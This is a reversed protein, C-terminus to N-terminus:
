LMVTRVCGVLGDCVQATAFPVPVVPLASTVLMATVQVVLGGRNTYTAFRPAPLTEANESFAALPTNVGIAPEGNAVPLLGTATATSGM